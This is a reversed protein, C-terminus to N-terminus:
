HLLRSLVQLFMKFQSLTGNLPQTIRLITENQLAHQHNPTSIQRIRISQSSRITGDPGLPCLTIQLLDRVPHSHITSYLLFSIKSSYIDGSHAMYMSADGQKGSAM